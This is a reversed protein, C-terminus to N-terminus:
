YISNWFNFKTINCFYLFSTAVNLFKHKLLRWQEVPQSILDRATAYGSIQRSILNLKKCFIEKLILKQILEIRELGCCNPRPTPPAFVGEPKVVRWSGRQMKLLGNRQPNMFIVFSLFYKKFPFFNINKLVLKVKANYGDFM